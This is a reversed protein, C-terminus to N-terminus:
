GDSSLPRAKFIFSKETKGADTSPKKVALRVAVLKFIPRNEGYSRGGIAAPSATM